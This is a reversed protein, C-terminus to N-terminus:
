QKAASEGAVWGTTWCIQLNYGGTPGDLDLAEGAFYLNRVLKSRMTRSDVEGLAVGGRTVMAREFGKIGKLTLELGKLAHAFRLRDARTVVNARAEGGIGCAGLIVPVYKPPVLEDLINRLLRNPSDRFTRVLEADLRDLPTNPRIDVQVKVEVGTLGTIKRSLNLAAPGSLGDRTVMCEGPEEAVKKGGQFARLVIGRLSAGEAERLWREEVTIPSLAPFLPTVTHGLGKLWGFAEGDSGTAPFSRGGTCVIFSAAEIERGRLLARTVADGERALGHVREGAILTVRGKEMYRLLCDLVDAARDSAPFVKGGEEEKLRLSHRRFFELTEATGFRAFASYLFKGNAGYVEALRSKDLTANALNCRGNGTSLLKRGPHTNGEILAVRAGLEAARGAAMMGAPGGGIVAVDFVM